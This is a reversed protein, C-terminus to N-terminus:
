TETVARAPVAFTEPALDDEYRRWMTTYADELHRCFRKTDFLPHGTRNRALRARLERLQVPNRALELARTFYAELSHTVLEPLGVAHLLSAAVRGPFAAGLCTLVPLGAWLADSSTTHANYPLTDLFLDALRHRALHHEPEMRPAFVLRGPSVGRAEAERRLNRAADANDELLWLVSGPVSQVLRMWIDFMAPTIKHNNNFCCFVFADDTLGVERRRPTHEPLPRQDDNAQYCEPLYAIAESCHSPLGPPLVIPDALLYDIEDLGMTGPYGLYSVQIPAPRRAFLGARSDGTYGKLDVVIDIEMSRILQAAETDSMRRVDVFRDFARELRRRMASSDDHGLSIAIIEFKERDHAEFLGAMLLATAHQHYDASVYAIRLREHHYRAGSWPQRWEGPIQDRAFIRACQLQLEPSDSLCLFSFPPVAAEDNRVGAIIAERAADYGTWDCAALRVGLLTGAAFKREPEIELLRAYALAAETPRRAGLLAAGRQEHADGLLPEIAIARDCYEIARTFKKFTMMISALNSLATPYDPKYELAMECAAVAEEYKGLKRLIGGLNNYGEPLEPRLALARECYRLAEEPRQLALLAGACDSLAEANNPDSQLGQEYSAVAAAFRKLELLAKGRNFLSPQLALAQDYHELAEEARGLKLLANGCNNRAEAFSPELELARRYCAIAATCDGQEYHAIGLNNHAIAYRSNLEIAREYSAIAEAHRGLRMLAQGLNNHGRVSHPELVLAGRYSSAAEEFLGNALLVDGLRRHVSADAPKLLALRRLVAEADRAQRKGSYMEALLSLAEPDGRTALTECIRQAEERRGARWLSLAEVVTVITNANAHV